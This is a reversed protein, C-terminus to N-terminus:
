KAQMVVTFTDRADFAISGTSQEGNYIFSECVTRAAKRVGRLNRVGSSAWNEYRILIINNREFAERGDFRAFDVDIQFGTGDYCYRYIRYDDPGIVLGQEKTLWAATCSECPLEMCSGTTDNVILASLKQESPNVINIRRQYFHGVLTLVGENITASDIQCRPLVNQLDYSFDRSSVTFIESPLSIVPTDGVRAVPATAYALGRYNQVRILHDLDRELIDHFSQQDKISAQAIAEPTICREVFRAIEEVYDAADHENMLYLRNLYGTFDIMLVKREVARRINPEAINHDIFEFLMDLMAIKDTLNKREFFRQTISASGGSRIRWLYGITRVVHVARARYHLPLMTPIDEFMYDEPFEIHNAIYFDRRILKNWLTSDFVLNPHKTIHTVNSTLNSFATLHLDSAQKEKGQIRAVDCIVMDLEPSRRAVAFMTSLTGDLLIDDSDIFMMWDGSVQRVGYNRAHSVGKHTTRIYQYGAHNRAFEQAINASGDTSGDDILIVEADLGCINREISKLCESLYLETNYFPVIISIDM